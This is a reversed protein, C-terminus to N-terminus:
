AEFSQHSFFQYEERNDREKERERERDREREREREEEEAEEQRRYIACSKVQQIIDYQTATCCHQAPTRDPPDRLICRALM